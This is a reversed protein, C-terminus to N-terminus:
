TSLPHMQWRRGSGWMRICESLEGIAEKEMTAETAEKASAAAAVCHVGDL